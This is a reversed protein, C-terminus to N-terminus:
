VVCPRGATYKRPHGKLQEGNEDLQNPGVSYVMWKGDPRIRYRMAKGDFPDLPIEPIYKPVIAQLNLPPHGEAKRKSL